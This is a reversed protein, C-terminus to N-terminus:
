NVGTVVLNGFRGEAPGDDLNGVGFAITGERLAADQARGVEQGNVLLVITPGQARVGIRNRQTGPQIAPHHTWGILNTGGPGVNRRLLFTSDNPDVVFTYHDDNDQRRFDLYLYADTTPAVLRADIEMQFDGFRESRTVFPAGGSGAVKVVFYEGGQYGVRRSSPDSAQVPWGSNPNSFDDRFLVAPGAPAVPAVPAGEASFLPALSEAPGPTSVLFNDFQVEVGRGAMQTYATWGIQGWPRQHDRAEGVQSGNVFLRLWDGQVIVAVRNTDAGRRIV